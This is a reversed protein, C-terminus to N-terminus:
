SGPSRGQFHYVNICTHRFHRFITSADGRRRSRDRRHVWLVGTLLVISHQGDKGMTILDQAEESNLGGEGRASSSSLMMAASSCWQRMDSIWSATVLGSNPFITLNICTDNGLSFDRESQSSLPGKFQITGPWGLENKPPYAGQKLYRRSQCVM